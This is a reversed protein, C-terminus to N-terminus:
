LYINTYIHLLSNAFDSRSIQLVSLASDNKPHQVREFDRFLTGSPLYNADCRIKADDAEELNTVLIENKWVHM